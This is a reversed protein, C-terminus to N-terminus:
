ISKKQFYQNSLNVHLTARLSSMFKVKVSTMQGGTVKLGKVEDPVPVSGRNQRHHEVQHDDTQTKVRQESTEFPIEGNELDAKMKNRILEKCGARIFSNYNSKYSILYSSSENKM